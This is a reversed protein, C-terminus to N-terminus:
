ESFDADEIARETAPFGADGAHARCFGELWTARQAGPKRACHSSVLAVFASKFHLRPFALVVAKVEDLAYVEPDPGVVDAAAGAAVLEAEPSQRAAIPYRMDHMVVANWIRSAEEAGAGHSLAFREAATAGDIEFPASPTAFRELLGLDHLVAAVYATEADFARGGHRAHLAGFVFTRLSHNVLFDPAATRCLALAQECLSTSPLVIGAVSRAPM